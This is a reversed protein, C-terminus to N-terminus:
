LGPFVRPWQGPALVFTVRDNDNDRSEGCNRSSLGQGHHVEELSIDRVDITASVIRHDAALKTRRELFKRM